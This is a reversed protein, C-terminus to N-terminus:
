RVLLPRNAGKRGRGADRPRSLLLAGDDAVDVRTGFRRGGRGLTEVLWAVDAPEARTLSMRRMKVPIMRLGLLAGDASSLTAFYMLGLDGRWHEYGRIGEYDSILDGCGYLVLRDKYIEAPRVNHSSHGHVLDVGGDILRHAFAIEDGPVDFGWNGGWHISVVAIDGPARADRIRRAITEANDLSLSTLANIGARWPGAAWGYPVGSSSDAFGFVLISGGAGTPVRAPARAEDLDAGAGATQIGAGRLAEITELLGARGFDLVHNNALNCVDIRAAALCGVNAPHMRYHIEKGDWFADSTTVSTELNVIAAAPKAAAIVAAGEGWIYGPAVPAPVPGSVREGLEVYDRADKIYPERLTADSHHAQVQDVGRGTMVDGALFISVSGGTM